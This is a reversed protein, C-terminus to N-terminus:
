CLPECGAPRQQLSHARRTWAGVLGVLPGYCRATEIEAELRQALTDFDGLADQAIGLEQLRPRVTVLLEYVWCSDEPNRVVPIDIRMQPAEFGPQSLAHLLTVELNPRAGTKSFAECLLEGCATRLPLHKSQSFFANWSPEQFVMVGGPRLYHALSRLTAIPEPLFMLVFRGVIADFHGELRMNTLDAEVFRVNGTRAAAACTRAKALAVGDRDVGVVHGKEGVVSAALFAVNGVGSGVDLVRQGPAVGADRFLRETYPDLTKAQRRLRRHEADTIGLVYDTTVPLADM